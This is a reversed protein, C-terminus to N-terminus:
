SVSAGILVVERSWILCAADVCSNVNLCHLATVNLHQLVTVCVWLIVCAGNGNSTDMRYVDSRAHGRGILQSDDAVVFWWCCFTRLWGHPVDANLLMRVGHWPISMDSSWLCNHMGWISSAMPGQTNGAPPSGTAFCTVTCISRTSVGSPQMCMYACAHVHARQGQCVMSDTRGILACM